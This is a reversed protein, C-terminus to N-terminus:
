TGLTVLHGFHAYQFSGFNGFYGELKKDSGWVPVFYHHDVRSSHVTVGVSEKVSPSRRGRGRGKRLPIPLDGGGGRDVGKRPYFQSTEVRKRFVARRAIARLVHYKLAYTGGERGSGHPTPGPGM